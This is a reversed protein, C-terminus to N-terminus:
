SILPVRRPWYGGGAQVDDQAIRTAGDDHGARHGHRREQVSELDDGFGDEDDVAIGEHGVVSAEGVVGLDLDTRDDGAARRSSAVTFHRRHLAGAIM